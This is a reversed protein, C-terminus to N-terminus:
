EKLFDTTSQRIASISEAGLVGFTPQGAKLAGKHAAGDIGAALGSIIQVGEAALAKSFAEAIQEGYSLNCHCWAIIRKM